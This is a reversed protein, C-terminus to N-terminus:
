SAPPGGSWQPLPAEGLAVEVAARALLRTSDIVPLPSDQPRVLLPIETCALAVAEAGAAALDEIIRGYEGRARDTFKGNVLEDFIIKDVLARDAAEPIVAEAGVRALAERYLPGEMTWKTALVGIKRYGRAAAERAVIRAIHLGPLPFDPGETELAMHATNDPCVFFDCGAASLREATRLLISRVVPYDGQEWPEMALALPLISLTIEPHMHPGLRRIAEHVAELYCLGAGEASHALIGIHKMESHKM